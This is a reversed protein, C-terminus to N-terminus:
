NGRLAQTVPIRAARYAPLLGGVLGLALAWGLGTLVLNPTLRFAFAVQSGNSVTSAGVGDFALYVVLVAALAGCAALATSEVVVSTMVALDNFGLARLTAIEITRRSVATYMTNLAAVVSGLAMIGAIVYAFTDILGARIAAQSAYFTTEPILVGTIRPDNALIQNTRAMADPRLRVRAVSVDSRRFVDQAVPLDIWLESEVSSGGGVFHGVVTWDAHRVNITDGVELREYQGAAQVGVLVEHKGPLFKRGSSIEVEPRLEFARQTVGRAIADAATGSNRKIVTVTTYTEGSVVTLNEVSEIADLEDRTIWGDMESNSGNRVIIARDTKASDVLVAKFGSSMALLGLLVAVVGGIGVVIIASGFKRSSLNSFNLAVVGLIQRFM